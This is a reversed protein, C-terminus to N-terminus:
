GRREPAPAPGAGGQLRDLREMFAAAEARTRDALERYDSEAIKGAHRDFELDRLTELAIDRLAAVERIESARDPGDDLPAGRGTFLPAAVAAVVGLAVVIGALLLM